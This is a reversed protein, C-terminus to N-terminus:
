SRPGCGWGCLEPEATRVTVEPPNPSRAVRRERRSRRISSLTRDVEAISPPMSAASVQWAMVGPAPRVNAQQMRPRKREEGADDPFGGDCEARLPEAGAQTTADSTVVLRGM